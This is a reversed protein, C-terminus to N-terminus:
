ASQNALHHNIRDKVLNTLQIDDQRRIDAITDLAGRVILFMTLNTVIAGLRQGPTTTQM